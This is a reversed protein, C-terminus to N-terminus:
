WFRKGRWLVGGRVCAVSRNICRMHGESGSFTPFYVWFIGEAGNVSDGKGKDRDLLILGFLGIRRGSALIKEVISKWTVKSVDCCM